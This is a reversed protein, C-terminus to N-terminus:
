NIPNFPDDTDTMDYINETQTDKDGYQYYHLTGNSSAEFFDEQAKDTAEKEDQALVDIVYTAVEKIEVTYKKM